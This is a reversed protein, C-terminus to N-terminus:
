REALVGQPVMWEDFFAALEDTASLPLVAAVYQDPRVVVVVGDRSLGREAFIDVDNWRTPGAAFVKEWDTLHLPGSQPRFVKPVRTVDIEDYGGPYIVKADFVADVDAGDPTYRVVPSESAEGLWRAFRDIQADGAVSPSADAFAYIRWRGDAKAHHGLHVANGDAVLTVPASKFRKGLPFGTALGQHEDSGVVGAGATYQTMFGSPFEATALYYTALDEPDSIEEPKRAMLSSWEKDFDILQQAVPRRETGYTSLLSAPSLGTLVSGLKWGLNFGDQMSVNMGQGAKASHTHCADGTLFVRPTRATGTVDDFGDTVRHGVEYVSHWAVEQVDLTYPHLIENAKRIIEEIPTQRVRHDDDEAVAGLDVYVRSLYGGERPIHLINGAEANIACKIRWDPFDTEVLVDMVGWAHQSIDGVHVRGIADRVRSRAGDCGVVYRARITREAGAGTGSSTSPRVRVEVPADEDDPVTLGLFEVGYDPVIRGPGFAAAEAFYDLVRAQNVILHPFESIDYAYDATRSRRVIRSPDAPDPGWFNMWGINYAEAVIREAFGFAQFTEVSRPQIGDAQGLALRGARREIVRTVVGPYQSMQAALLMGAPGSGVILVDVEDPLDAPRDIGTGAAPQVRPDGSVYGHHHFQM